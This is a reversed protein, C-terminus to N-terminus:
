RSPTPKSQSVPRRLDASTALDRALSAASRTAESPGAKMLAPWAREVRGSMTGGSSSSSSAWNCSWSGPKSEARAIAQM